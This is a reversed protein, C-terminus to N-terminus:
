EEVTEKITEEVVEEVAPPQEKTVKSKPKVKDLTNDKVKDLLTKKVPSLLQAVGKADLNADLKLTRKLTLLLLEDVSKTLDEGKFDVDLQHWGLYHVALSAPLETTESPLLTGFHGGRVRKESKNTIVALPIV